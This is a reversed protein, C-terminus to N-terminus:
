KSKRVPVFACFQRENWTISHMDEPMGLSTMGNEHNYVRQRAASGDSYFTYIYREDKSYAQGIPTKNM